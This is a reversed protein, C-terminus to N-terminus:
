PVEVLHEFMGDQWATTQPDLPVPHTCLWDAAEELSHLRGALLESTLSLMQLTNVPEEFELGAENNGALKLLFPIRLQQARGVPKRYSHDSTVLIDTSDWVGSEQMAERFEGLAKDALALNDEYGGAQSYQGAHRDYIVPFHPLPLHVYVVGLAPDALQEKAHALTRQFRLQHAMSGSGAPRLLGSRHVLPLHSLAAKFDEKMQDAVTWPPGEPGMFFPESHCSVLLDGFIHCYPHYWGTVSANLGNQRALSFLTAEERWDHWQESNEFRVQFQSARPLRIERVRKGTVMGPISILTFAGASYANRAHLSLRRLRDFEPLQLNPDRRQFLSYEDAEDFILWAVRRAPRAEQRPANERDATKHYTAVEFVALPYLPGFVTVLGALIRYLIRLKGLGVAVAVGILVLRIALWLIASHESHAGAHSVVFAPIILSVIFASEVGRRLRARSAPWSTIWTVLGFLVLTLLTVSLLMAKAANEDLGAVFYYRKSQAMPLRTFGDLMYLSALGSSFLLRQLM